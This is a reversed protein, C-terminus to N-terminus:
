KLGFMDCIQRAMGAVQQYQADNVNNQRIFNQILQEPNRGQMLKAFEGLKAMPFNAINPLGPSTQASRGNLMQMIPNLM